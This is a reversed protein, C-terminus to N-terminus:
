AVNLKLIYKVQSLANEKGTVLHQYESPTLMVTYYISDGVVFPVNFVGPTGNRLELNEFRLRGVNNNGIQLLLSRCINYTGSADQMYYNNSSDIKLDSLDSSVGYKVDVKKLKRVIPLYVLNLANSSIDEYVADENEFLDVGLYTGFIQSAIYRLFHRGLNDSFNNGYAGNSTSSVAYYMPNLDQNITSWGSIDVFYKTYSADYTIADDTQFYFVSKLTALSISRELIYGGVPISASTAPLVGSSSLSISLDLFDTFIFELPAFSTKILFKIGDYVYEREALLAQVFVGTITYLHYLDKSV